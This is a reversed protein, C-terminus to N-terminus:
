GSVRNERRGRVTEPILRLVGKVDITLVLRFLLHALGAFQSQQM